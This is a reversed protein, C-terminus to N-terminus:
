SKENLAAAHRRRKGARVPCGYCVAAAGTLYRLKCAERAGAVAAATSEDELFMMSMMRESFADIDKDTVDWLNGVVCPAGAALYSLAVGEPDLLTSMCPVDETGAPDNSSRLQGSSCGMLIISSSISRSLLNDSGVGSLYKRGGGHGFYLMLGSGHGLSTQLFETSPTENVVGNWSRNFMDSYDNILPEIRERTEPLNSEPDLIFTTKEPDFFKPTEVVGPRPLRPAGLAYAVSPLRCISTGQLSPIGEVPFRQLNEDLALFLVPDVVSTPKGTDHQIREEHLLDILQAKKLGRLAKRETGTAVLEAVLDAVKMTKVEQLPTSAAAEEFRDALNQGTTHGLVVDRVGCSQFLARDFAELLSGLDNDLEKRRRWWNKKEVRDSPEIELVDQLQLTNRLMMQKFCLLPGDLVGSTSDSPFVCSAKHELQGNQFEVSAVLVEGSPCAAISVLRHNSDFQRHLDEFFEHQREPNQIDFLRLWWEEETHPGQVTKNRINKRYSAEGVSAHILTCSSYHHGNVDSSPGLSLAFSRLINRKLTSCSSGVFRLASSFSQRAMSVQASLSGRSCEWISSLEGSERANQLHRLGATYFAGARVNNTCEESAGLSYLSALTNQQSNSPDAGLKVAAERLQFDYRIQPYHLDFSGTSLVHKSAALLGDADAYPSVRGRNLLDM